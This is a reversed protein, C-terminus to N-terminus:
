ARKIFEFLGKVISDDYGSIFFSKIGEFYEMLYNDLEKKNLFEETANSNRNKKDNVENVIFFCDRDQTAKYIQLTEAFDETELFFGYGLAHFSCIFVKKMGESMIKTVTLFTKSKLGINGVSVLQKGYIVSECWYITKGEILAKDIKEFNMDIGGKHPYIVNLSNTKNTKENRQKM